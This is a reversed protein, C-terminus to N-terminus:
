GSVPRPARMMMGRNAAVWADLQEVGFKIAHQTIRPQCVAM